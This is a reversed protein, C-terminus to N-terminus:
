LYVDQYRNFLPLLLDLFRVRHSVQTFEVGSKVIEKMYLTLMALQRDEQARQTHAEKFADIKIGNLPNLAFNRSLDDIHLTNNANRYKLTDAVSHLFAKIPTSRSVM